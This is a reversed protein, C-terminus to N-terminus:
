QRTAWPMFEELLYTKAAHICAVCIYLMHVNMDLTTNNWRIKDLFRSRRIAFLFYVDFKGM